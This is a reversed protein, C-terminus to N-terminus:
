LLLYKFRLFRVEVIHLFVDTIEMGDTGGAWSGAIDATGQADEAEDTFTPVYPPNFLIIDVSHKLRSLLPLALSAIM